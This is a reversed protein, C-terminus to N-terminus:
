HFVVLNTCLIKNVNKERGLFPVCDIFMNTMNLLPAKLFM